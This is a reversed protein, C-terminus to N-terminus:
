LNKITINIMENYSQYDNKSVLSANILIPLEITFFILLNYAISFMRGYVDPLPFIYIVDIHRKKNVCRILMLITMKLPCHLYSFDTKKLMCVNFM